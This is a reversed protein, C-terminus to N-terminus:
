GKQQRDQIAASSLEDLMAFLEDTLPILKQFREIAAEHQRDNWLQVVEAALSHFSQHHVTIKAFIPLSAFSQGEPGDCWTGFACRHFNSADPPTLQLRGDFMEVLKSRWAMHGNKIAGFDILRQSVRFRAVTEQLHATVKKLTDATFSIHAGDRNIAEGERSVTAIDEAITKSVEAIQTVRGNADRVGDSAHAINGAIDKTVTAQQEIATAMDTVITGVENVIQTIRAIDAVAGDTVSQMGTIKKKIEGTARATQEALTKIENAVVAFGKGAAGARAAEITANLALLNTQASITTITETVTGIEQAATGLNRVIDTIATGQRTADASILRAKEANGAIESISASMEETASAVSSLNASAQETGAAVSTTNASSVEAASAVSQSRQATAGAGTSLRQSVALLGSTNAALTGAANSVQLFSHRLLSSLRDIARALSGIEDRRLKLREDIEQSIDGESVRGLHATLAYVPRTISASTLIGFTLAASLAILFAILFISRFMAYLEKARQQNGMLRKVRWQKLDEIAKLISTTAPLVETTYVMAAETNKGAFSLETAKLNSARAAAIKEELTNLLERGRETRAASALERIAALYQERSKTVLAQHEQKDNQATHLLLAAMNEYVAHVDESIEAVKLSKDVETCSDGILQNMKSLSWLGMVIIIVFLMTISGFGIALRSRLKM